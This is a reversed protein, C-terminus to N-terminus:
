RPLRIGRLRRRLNCDLQWSRREASSLVYNALEAASQSEFAQILGKLQKHNPLMVGYFLVADDRQILLTPFNEVDLHGIVKADDEVDLWVFAADPFAEHLALFADRYDRCTGCWSACLCAILFQAELDVSASPSSALPRSSM